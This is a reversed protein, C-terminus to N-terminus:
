FRYTRDLPTDTTLERIELLERFAPEDHVVQTLATQAQRSSAFLEIALPGDSLVLAYLHM